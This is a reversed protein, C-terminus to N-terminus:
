TRCQRAENVIYDYRLGGSIVALESASNRSMKDDRIAVVHTWSFRLSFQLKHRLTIFFFGSLELISVHPPNRHDHQAGADSTKCLLDGGVLLRALRGIFYEM